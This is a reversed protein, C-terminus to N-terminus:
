IALAKRLLSNFEPDNMWRSNEMLGGAKNTGYYEKSIFRINGCTDAESKISTDTFSLTIEKQSINGYSDCAEITINVKSKDTVEKIKNENFDKIIFHNKDNKGYSIVGDEIDDAKIKSAITKETIKGDLADKLSFFMDTAEITPEHEWVAYFNIVAGNTNEIGLLKCIDSIRIKEEPTYSTESTTDGLTWGICMHQTPMSIEGGYKVKLTQGTDFQVIYENEEWVGYVNKSPANSVIWANSVGAGVSYGVSTSNKNDAWGIMHYGDKTWSTIPFSQGQSDYTYTKSVSTGDSPTQNRYFKVSVTKAKAYATIIRDNSAYFEYPNSTLGNNGDWNKFDYGTNLSASVKVKVGHCYTGSGSVSSIGNSGKVTITKFLGSVTKGFYSHLSDLASRSWGAAGSIGTYTDYVNGWTPGNDNMAGKNKGNKNIVMCADLVISAKGESLAQSASVNLRSKIRDLSLKYMMYEYKSTNTTNHLRLNNGGLEYYISQLVNGANGKITLKYGITRYKTGSSSRNGMTGFYIDGSKEDIAKFVASNGYSNYFEQANNWVDARVSDTNAVTFVLM